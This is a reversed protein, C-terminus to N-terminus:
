SLMQTDIMHNGPSNKVGTILEQTFYNEKKEGGM